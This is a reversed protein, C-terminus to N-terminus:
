DTINRLVSQRRLVTYGALRYCRTESLQWRAPNEASQVLGFALEQSLSYWHSQRKLM